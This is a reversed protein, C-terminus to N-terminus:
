EATCLVTTLSDVGIAVYKGSIVLKTLDEISLAEEPYLVDWQVKLDQRSYKPEAFEEPEDGQILLVPGQTVKFAGLFDTGEQIAETLLNMLTTKGTGHEAALLVIGSVAFDFVRWIKGTHRGGRDSPRKIQDELPTYDYESM